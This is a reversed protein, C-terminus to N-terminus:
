ARSTPRCSSRRRARISIAPDHTFTLCYNVDDMEKVPTNATGRMSRPAATRPNSLLFPLEEAWSRFRGPEYGPNVHAVDAIGDRAMDYHDFSQRTTAGPYIQLKMTGNSAKTM